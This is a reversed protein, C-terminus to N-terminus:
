ANSRDGTQRITKTESVFKETIITAQNFYHYLDDGFSLMLQAYMYINRQPFARTSVSDACLFGLLDYGADSSGLRAEEIRIPAVITTNYFDHWNRTSNMYGETVGVKKLDRDYKKLDPIAVVDFKNGMIQLFDTNESIPVQKSMKTPRPKSKPSRCLTYVLINKWDDAGKVIQRPNVIAKICVNVQEGSLSTLLESILTVFERGTNELEKTVQSLLVNTDAAQCSITMLGYIKDRLLHSAKHKMECAVSFREILSKKKLYLYLCFFATPAIFSAITNWSTSVLTLLNSMLSLAGVIFAGM